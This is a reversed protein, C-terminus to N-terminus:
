GSPKGKFFAPRAALPEPKFGAASRQARKGPRDSNAARNFEVAQQTEGGGIANISALYGNWEGAPRWHGIQVVWADRKSVHRGTTLQHGLPCRCRAIEYRDSAYEILESDCFGVRNKIASIVIRYPGRTM